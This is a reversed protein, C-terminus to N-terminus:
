RAAVPALRQVLAEFRPDNRLPDWLPNLRLDGYTLQAIGSGIAPRDVLKSLEAIALDNEGIWGYVVALNCHVTTADFNNEKFPTVDCARKAEEVAKDKHGLGADVMALVSLQLGHISAVGVRNEMEPRAKAFAKAAANNDGHIRAALAEFWADPYVIGNWGIPEHRGSLIRSVAAADHSWVALMMQTTTVHDDELQHAAIQTTIAERLSGLDASEELNM